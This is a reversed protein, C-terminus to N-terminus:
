RLAPGDETLVKYSRVNVQEQVTAKKWLAKANNTPQICVADGTKLPPLDRANRNYYYAQKTKTKWKEEQVNEALKPKLLRESTPLLTRTRHSILGQAPSSKTGKSPTNRHDLIELWPDTGDKNAKKILKKAPKVANKAM